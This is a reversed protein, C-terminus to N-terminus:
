RSARRTCNGSWRRSSSNRNVQAGRRQQVIWQARLVGGSRLGLVQSAPEGTEPDTGIIHTGNFEQVPMLEVATVGLEKLYPIKETLGRYTGPYQVASSPHVTFVAFTRKM